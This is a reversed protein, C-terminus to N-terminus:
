RPKARNLEKIIFTAISKPVGLERFYDIARHHSTQTNISLLAGDNPENPLKAKIITNTDLIIPDNPYAPISTDKPFITLLISAFNMEIVQNARCSFVKRILMSGYPAYGDTGNDRRREIWVSNVTWHENRDGYFINDTTAERNEKKWSGDIFAEASINASLGLFSLVAHAVSKPLARSLANSVDISANVSAKAYTEIKSFTETTSSTLKEHGCESRLNSIEENTFKFTPYGRNLYTIFGYDELPLNKYNKPIYAKEKKGSISLEVAHVDTHQEGLFSGTVRPWASDWEDGETFRPFSNWVVRCVDPTECYPTLRNILFDYPDLAEIDQRIDKERVLVRIGDQTTVARYPVLKNARKSPIQIIDGFDYLLTYGPIYLFIRLENAPDNALTGKRLFGMLGNNQAYASQILFLTSITLFFATIRFKNIM